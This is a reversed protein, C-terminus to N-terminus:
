IHEASPLIDLTEYPLCKILEDALYTVMTDQINVKSIKGSENTLGM